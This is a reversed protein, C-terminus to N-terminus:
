RTAALPTLEVKYGMARLERLLRQKRRKVASLNKSVPGYEIYKVGQHMVKWLLRLMRHAVAWIAKKSGLRAVLRRFLMQFHSDKTRVASWAVQVMIRRLSRNGKPSREGMSKGGSEKRGPCIGVWSALKEPAAFSAATPGIEAIIQQAAEPLVGPIESMRVVTDQHTRVAAALDQSTASIQKDLLDMHELHWKLLSRHAAKCKGSLADELQEKSARLREDGLAALKAADSEGGALARLIRLGSAGFLDSVVSTLKICCEELVGELRNRVRVRDEILQQRYRGISRWDRQEAEPVYSLTLDDSRLRKLIRKADAFDTKRGQPAATSRAQALYLSFHAELEMWVPRWYQATSEMAVHKVNRQSLWAALHELERVTTGFKRREWEEEAQEPKCVMVALMAKHVDISAATDTGSIM